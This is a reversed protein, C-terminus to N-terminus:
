TCATGRSRAGRLGRGLATRGREAPLLHRAVGGTGVGVVRAGAEAEHQSLARQSRGTGAALARRPVPRAGDPRAAARVRPVAEPRLRRRPPVEGDERAQLWVREGVKYSTAQGPIALYREVESVATEHDLIAREELLAVAMEPTWPRSSCDGFGGLSGLDEPAPFGLHLGLDVVIRAARVAQGALYGLEEAPDTFAGLEEMLREAYLAWGEGNGSTWAETRQFRSLRDSALLFTADQLHHGPVSEHYWTSVNRWWPFRTRGLTPFWTTGPRSLDESPAIYYPAASSGEPALRADCRRIREDIDFHAGDLMAVTAQTLSELRELLADTGFIARADDADLTTAVDALRIAGPALEGALEWMRENIRRLDAWGWAYLEDLDLAIGNYYRQWRSYREPGCADEETARAALDGSSRRSSGPPRTRTTRPTTLGPADGLRAAFASFAGEAYIGGPGRRRPRPATAAARGERRPGGVRSALQRPGGARGCLRVAVVEKEADTARAM